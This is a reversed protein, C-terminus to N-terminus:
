EFHGFEKLKTESKTWNKSVKVFLKLFVRVNLLNEIDRRAQAGIRKLMIGGKGIIIGKQSDKEVIIEADIVAVNKNHKEKFSSIVVATSYPIEQQTMNFVKERIIEAALFREPKDTIYDDDFYKVGSPLKKKIAHLLTDVGDDKLASIMFADSFDCKKMYKDVFPLLKEREVMDIKNIILIKTVNSNKLEELIFEDEELGKHRAETLFLIIDIHKLANLAERVIKKNFLEKADHIGPTDLFVVQSDNDSLIGKISNRTTQPKRSTISLKEGLFANLLTSKGVNPRGILSVFGSSYKKENDM